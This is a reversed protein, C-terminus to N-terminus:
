QAIGTIVLASTLEWATAMLVSLIARQSAFTLNLRKVIVKGALASISIPATRTSAALIVCRFADVETWGSVRVADVITRHLASGMPVTWWSRVVFRFASLGIRSPCSSGKRASVDIGGLASGTGVSTTVGLRVCRITGCGLSWCSRTSSSGKAVNASTGSTVCGTSAIM